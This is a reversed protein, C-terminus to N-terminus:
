TEFSIDPPMPNTSFVVSRSACLNKPGFVLYRDGHVLSGTFPRKNVSISLRTLIPTQQGSVLFPSQGGAGVTPVLDLSYALNALGLRACAHRPQQHSSWCIVTTARYILGAPCTHRKRGKGWEKIGSPKRPDRPAGTPTCWVSRLLVTRPFEVPLARKSSDANELLRVHM